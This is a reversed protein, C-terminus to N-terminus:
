KKKKAAEVAKEVESRLTDNSWRNDVKVGNAEALALLDVREAADKEAALEEETKAKDKPEEQPQARATPQVHEALGRRVWREAKDKRLSFLRGKPDVHADSGEDHVAVLDGAKHETRGTSYDFAVGDTFKIRREM